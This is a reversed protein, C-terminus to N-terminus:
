PWKRTTGLSYGNARDCFADDASRARQEIGTFYANQPRRRGTFISGVSLSVSRIVQFSGDEGAVSQRSVRPVDSEGEWVWVPSTSAQFDEDFAVIAMHVPVNRVTEAEADALAIIDATVGSLSFEVREAVGNVLQSLTPLGVLDGIGLYTGGQTDIANADMDHDGVGSWMRLWTPPSGNNAKILLFVGVRVTPAGFLLADEETIFAM